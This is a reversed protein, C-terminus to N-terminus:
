IAFLHKRWIDVIFVKLKLIIPLIRLGYLLKVSREEM